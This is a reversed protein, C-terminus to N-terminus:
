RPSPGYLTPRKQIYGFAGGIPWTIEQLLVGEANVEHIVGQASYGIVTNGNPLRQVDGLVDNNIPPVAAYTWVRTATMANLDLDLEIARAGTPNNGMPGNNFYLVRTPSLVDLGHEREWSAGDGTFQNTDGGLVWVVEGDLTVKTYNNHLDDSFIISQDDPSYEVHNVHCMGESGHADQANVITEITGDAFRRKIDPCAGNHGYFIVSEDPLITIQHDQFGFDESLDEEVLGDMTVRHIQALGSTTNDTGNIWMYKGDYSMRVGTVYNGVALAWVFDGDKDLVYAPSNQGGQAQYQGTMVFGGALAEPQINTVDLSPLINPLAGTTITLDGSSCETAGSGVVIQYHYERSEKMGLLLTRYNPETLSVPATMGYTTDLGFDIRARDPSAVTTTFTVIGVTAIKSSIEASPTICGSAGAGGTAGAAGAGGTAAGAKGGTGGGTGSGAAGAGGTAAGAMGGASMGGGSIGGKGSGAQANGGAGLGGSGSVGDFPTENSAGCAVSASALSFIFLKSQKSTRQM